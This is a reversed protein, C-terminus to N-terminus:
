GLGMLEVLKLANASSAPGARLVYDFSMTAGDKGNSVEERFHVAHAAARLEATDGLELDHTSVAGVAGCRLLHALIRRAAVQREATNTGHLMEDLLFLVPVPGGERAANVVGRLRLLEAMFLSVGAELSDSVRMSTHVRLPPLVLRRACAPAGAQALVANTGISRLLTTKGAMNSGTVLLFTGPPGLEVDNPVCSAPPLLPHGLAEAHLIV